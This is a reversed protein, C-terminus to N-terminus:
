GHGVELVRVAVVSQPIVAVLDEDAILAIWIPRNDPEEVLGSRLLLWRLFARQGLRMTLASFGPRPAPAADRVDSACGVIATLSKFGSRM